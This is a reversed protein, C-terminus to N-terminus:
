LGPIKIMLSNNFVSYNAFSINVCESLHTYDEYKTEAIRAHKKLQQRM